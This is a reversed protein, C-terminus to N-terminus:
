WPPRQPGTLAQGPKRFLYPFRLCALRRWTGHDTEEVIPRYNTSIFLTHTAPFTVPDQRIRRATISPNGVVKKLRNVSLRGEEPTEEILALRAGRLDMLETPHASPDAIMIRDSALLFYDGLVAQVGSM